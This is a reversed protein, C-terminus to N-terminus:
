VIFFSRGGYTGISVGENAVLYSKIIEKGKQNLVGITPFFEDFFWKDKEKLSHKILTILDPHIMKSLSEKQSTILPHEEDPTLKGAAETPDQIDYSNYIDWLIKGYLKKVGILTPFQMFETGNFVLKWRFIEWKIKEGEQFNGPYIENFDTCKIVVKSQFRMRSDVWKPNQTTFGFTLTRKRLRVGIKAILENRTSAYRISEVWDQFEDVGVFGNQYEEDLAVLAKMDLQKSQLHEVTGDARKLKFELHFNLWTPIHNALAVAATYALSLTKGGGSEGIFGFAGSKKLDILTRHGNSSNTHLNLQPEYLTPIYKKKEM